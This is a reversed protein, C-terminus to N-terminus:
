SEIIKRMREYCCDHIDLLPEEDKGSAVHFNCDPCIWYECPHGFIGDNPHDPHRNYQIHRKWIRGVSDSVNLITGSPYEFAWDWLHPTGMPPVLSNM